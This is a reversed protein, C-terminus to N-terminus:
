KDKQSFKLCIAVEEKSLIQLGMSNLIMDEAIVQDNGSSICISYKKGIKLRKLTDKDKTLLMCTEKDNDNKDEKNYVFKTVFIRCSADKNTEIEDWAILLVDARSGTAFDLQAYCASLMALFILTTAILKRM